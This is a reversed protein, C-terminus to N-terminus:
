NTVSQDCILSIYGEYKYLLCGHRLGTLPENEVEKAFCNQDVRFYSIFIVSM